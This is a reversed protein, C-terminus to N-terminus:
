RVIRLLFDRLEREYRTSDVNWGSAHSADPYVSYSIIDPRLVALEDSTEIPVRTDNEGHILLIPLGLRDSDKLYDMADWDVGFRLTAVWKVTDAVFGPLNRERAGLDVVAQFNTVPSDLVAGTVFGALPSEYLFKLVIGGGMSEGILVVEEVGPRSLAYEVAAHVDQWETLGYQYFGSPDLPQGEDNRYTIFLAPVGIDNLTPLLFLGDGRAGRHGHVFIALTDDDGEFWWADLNGLSSEYEVETYRIGLALYPDSPYIHGSVFAPASQPPDGDIMTFRRVLYDDGREVIQEVMGNGGDWGLWWKGALSWDGNERGNELRVLGDGHSSAVLDYEVEKAAVELALDNLVGSYYWAVGFNLAALVSLVTILAVVLWWWRPRGGAPLRGDLRFHGAPPESDQDHSRRNRTALAVKTITPPTATNM